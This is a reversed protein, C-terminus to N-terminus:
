GQALLRQPGLVGLDRLAEIVQSRDIVRLSPAPPIDSDKADINGPPKTNPQENLNPNLNPPDKPREM